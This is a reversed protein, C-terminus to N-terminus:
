PMISVCHRTIIFYFYTEQVFESIPGRHLGCRVVVGGGRMENMTKRRLERM